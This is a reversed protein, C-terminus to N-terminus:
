SFGCMPGGSWIKTTWVPQTKAWHALSSPTAHTGSDFRRLIVM